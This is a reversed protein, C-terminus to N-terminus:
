RYKRRERLNERTVELEREAKAQQVAAEAKRTELELRRVELVEASPEPASAKQAELYHRHARDEDAARVDADQKARQIQKELIAPQTLRYIGFAAVTAIVAMIMEIM